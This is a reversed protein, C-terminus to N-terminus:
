DTNANQVLLVTPVFRYYRATNFMSYHTMKECILVEMDLTSVAPYIVLYILGIYTYQLGNIFM